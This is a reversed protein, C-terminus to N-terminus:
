KMTDPGQKIHMLSYNFLLISNVNLSNKRLLPLLKDIKSRCPEKKFSIFLEYILKSDEYFDTNNM